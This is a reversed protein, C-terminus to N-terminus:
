KLFGESDVNYAIIKITNDENLLRITEMAEYKEYRVNYILLYDIHSDTDEIRTTKWDILKKSNYEGLSKRTKLFIDRLGNKGTVEFFKDSFLRECKEYQQKNIHSYLSDAIKEAKERQSDENVYTSKFTCCVVTLLIISGSIILLKNM